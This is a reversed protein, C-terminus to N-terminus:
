VEVGSDDWSDEEEVWGPEGRKPGGVRLLQPKKSVRYTLRSTYFHCMEAVIAPISGFVTGSVPFIFYDLMNWRWHRYTFGGQMQEYLGARRMEDERAQVCTYHYSEYLWFFFMMCLFGLLRLTSTFDFAWLLTPAILAVPTFLSYIASSLLLITLHTPLFHAEFLRHFLIFLNLSDYQVNATHAAKSLPTSSPYTMDSASDWDSGDLNEPAPPWDVMINDGKRWWLTWGKEIAYGTDLAGWMHRLAQRYRARGSEVWGRYGKADSSVNCQSAPSYVIQIALKGATAFYCKLYMHLDEGIAEPGTDWGGVREALLLSISYVSTPICIASNKYLGSLGAGCWLIDAVRVLAPVIHANRDFIIPTVYLTTDATQYHRFHKKTVLSFYNSSLHTDADMVTVVCNRRAKEDRYNSSAQKAAWSINSSKGQSEGNVGAPHVTFQISRFAKPFANMLAFATKQADPDKEEM